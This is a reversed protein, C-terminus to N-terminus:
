HFGSGHEGRCFVVNEVLKYTDAFNGFAQLWPPIYGGIDRGFSRASDAIWKSHAGSEAGFCGCYLLGRIASRSDPVKAVGFDKSLVMSSSVSVVPVKSLTKM